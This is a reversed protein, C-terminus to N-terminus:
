VLRAESLRSAAAPNIYLVEMRPRGGDAHARRTVQRWDPLAHDYLESPYGSLVVMGKLSRLLDLLKSHDAESLEHSYVHYGAGRRRNGISRTSPLYPPDVYQLANPDDLEVLLEFADTQEIVVGDLRAIIRRLALPYAAWEDAPVKGESVFRRFGTKYNSDSTADSGFGMFSRIITRRAREVDDDTPSFALDFEARAFPTLGLVRVLAAAKVPDQLTRMLHVITDDLDNYVEAKVRPKRLLVSAGGGFVESYLSHPPLHQCIWEAQMYKGGHWRVLPRNKRPKNNM